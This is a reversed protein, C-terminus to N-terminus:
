TKCSSVKLVMEKICEVFKATNKPRSNLSVTIYQPLIGLTMNDLFCNEYKLVLRQINENFYDIDSLKYVTFKDKFQPILNKIEYDGISTYKEAIGMLFGQPGKFKKRINVAINNETKMLFKANQCSNTKRQNVYEIHTLRDNEEFFYLVTNENNKKLINKLVIVRKVYAIHGKMGLLPASIIKHKDTEIILKIKRRKIEMKIYSLVDTTGFEVEVYFRKFEDILDGRSIIESYGSKKLTKILKRGRGLQSIILIIAWIIGGGWIVAFIILFIEMNKDM